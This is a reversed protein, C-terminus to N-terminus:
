EKPWSERLKITRHARAVLVRAGSLGVPGRPWRPSKRLERRRERWNWLLEALAKRMAVSCSDTGVVEPPFIM